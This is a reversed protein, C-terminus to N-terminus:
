KRINVILGENFEVLRLSFLMDLGLTFREFNKIEPKTRTKDWLISVTQKDNINQLLIAGVNLISNSLTIHKGPLIV